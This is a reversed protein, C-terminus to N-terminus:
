VLPRLYHLAKLAEANLYGGKFLADSLKEEATLYFFGLFLILVQIIELPWVSKM